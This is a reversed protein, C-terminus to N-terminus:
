IGGPDGRAWLIFQGDAEGRTGDDSIPQRGPGGRQAIMPLTSDTRGGQAMTPLTHDM